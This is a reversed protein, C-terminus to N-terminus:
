ALKMVLPRQGRCVFLMQEAAIDVKQTMFTKIEEVTDERHRTTGVVHQDLFYLILMISCYYGFM